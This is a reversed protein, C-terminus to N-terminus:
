LAKKLGSDIARLRDVLPPHSYHYASFLPDVNMSAKNEEEMKLLATRLSGGHGLSVAFGDAQFEFSRSVVNSAYHVVEDIPGVIFQFLVLTVFVPAPAAFGFSAPLGRSNRVLMFLSFQILVLVQNMAFLKPTHRLKWHGLEHALVAVVQEESCQGILTDYLVIRKNKFFGYMYANSHASRRSGDVKYLKRLPFRLGGALAEIKQRLPGEPLPEFKNFLPAIFVPYITMIFLSLVLVFAWLYLPLLPGSVQLIYTVVAVIPPIFVAGLLLQKLTDSLFLGLTQKNFGHRQEIVFTSYLGWPLETITSVVSLLQVFMVTQAIEGSLWKSPGVAQAARALAHGSAAWAWPLGGASVVLLVEALGWVGHAFSYWWKDLSYAQTKKYLDHTFAEALAAPPKPRSIAKLQRVDLYTHFLYVLVTFGLFLQLYPVGEDPVASLKTLDLM